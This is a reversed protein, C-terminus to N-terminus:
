PTPLGGAARLRTRIRSSSERLEDWLGRTDERLVADPDPDLVWWDGREIERALQGPAWGAYGAFFRVRAPPADFLREVDRPLLALHMGAGVSLSEGVPGPAAYLAFLGNREVPGGAHLPATFRALRPQDPVLEALSRTLPRNVIVGIAAGDPMQAVAIVTRAFNPDALSPKAVLLVGAPQAAAYGQALVLLFALAAGRPRLAIPV